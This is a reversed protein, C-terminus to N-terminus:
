PQYQNLLARARGDAPDLEVALRLHHLADRRRGEGALLEALNTHAQAHNPQYRVATRFAAIAGARDGQAKLCQGLNFQALAYGPRLAVARRFYSAADRPRGQQFLAVGLYFQVEVRGADLRAARRLAQEAAPYHQRRILARGLGLWASASTPYDRVLRQLLVVAEAARDQRLLRSARALRAQQGVRLEELEELLPDPPEPDPPLASALRRQREAGARDGRRRYVEALLTRAAQRTLPSEAARTLHKVSEPWDSRQYALRGLGLHARPDEAQRALVERFLEEAERFRGQGLLVEALRLRPAADGAESLRVARRLPALAAAPDGLTLIAGRLYPWRPEEPDLGEAEAFCTVSEAYFSHAALVMGLRGWADASRPARRVAEVASRVAARVAPDADAMDVEPPAPPAPRHRWWVGLVAGSALLTLVLGAALV